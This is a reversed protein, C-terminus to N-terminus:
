VHILIRPSGNQWLGLLLFHAINLAKAVETHNIVIKQFLIFIIITFITKIELYIIVLLYVLDILYKGFIVSPQCIVLLRRNLLDQICFLM